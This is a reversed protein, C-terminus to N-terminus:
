SIVFYLVGKMDIQIYSHMWALMLTQTSTYFDREKMLLSMKKDRLLYFKFYVSISPCLYGDFNM